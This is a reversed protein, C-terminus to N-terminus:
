ALAVELGRTLHQRPETLLPLLRAANLLDVRRDAPLRRWRRVVPLLHLQQSLVLLGDGTVPDQLSALEFQGLLLYLVRDLRVDVQIKIVQRLLVRLHHVEGQREM